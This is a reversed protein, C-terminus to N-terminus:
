HAQHIPYETSNTGLAGQDNGAITAPIEQTNSGHIGPNEQHVGKTTNNGIAAHVCYPFVSNPEVADPFDM